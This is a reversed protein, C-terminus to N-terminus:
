SCSNLKDYEEQNFVVKKLFEIQKGVPTPRNKVLLAKNLISKEM